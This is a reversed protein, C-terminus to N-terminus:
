QKASIWGVFGAQLTQIVLQLDTDTIGTDHFARSDGLHLSIDAEYTSLVIYDINNSHEEIEGVLLRHLVAAQQKNYNLMFDTSLVLELAKKLRNGSIQAYLGIPDYLSPSATQHEYANEALIRITPLIRDTPLVAPFMRSGKWQNTYGRNVASPQVKGLTNTYYVEFTSIAPADLFLLTAGRMDGTLQNTWNIQYNPMLAQYIDALWDWRKIEKTGIAGLSTYHRANEQYLSVETQSLEYFYQLVRAGAALSQSQIDRGIKVWQKVLNTNQLISENLLHSATPDLSSV